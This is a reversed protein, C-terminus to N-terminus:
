DTTRCVMTDNDKCQVIGIKPNTTINSSYLLGMMTMNIAPDPCQLEKYFGYIDEGLWDPQCKQLNRYPTDEGGRWKTSQQLTFNFYPPAYLPKELYFGNMFSIAFRPSNYTDNGLDEYYSNPIPPNETLFKVFDYIIYSLFIAFFIFSGIMSCKTSVTRSKPVPIFSFIDFTQLCRVLCNGEPQEKIISRSLLTRVTQREEAM